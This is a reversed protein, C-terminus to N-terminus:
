IVKGVFKITIVVVVLRKEESEYTTPTARASAYEEVLFFFYACSPARKIPFNRKKKTKQAPLSSKWIKKKKSSSCFSKVVKADVVLVDGTIKDFKVRTNM